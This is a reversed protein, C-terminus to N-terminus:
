FTWDTTYANNILTPGNSHSAFYTSSLGLSSLSANSLTTKNTVGSPITEPYVAGWIFCKTISCSGGVCNVSVADGVYSPYPTTAGGFSVWCETMSGGETLMGVLGGGSIGVTIRSGRVWCYQIRGGYELGVLGGVAQLGGLSQSDGEEYLRNLDTNYVWCQDITGNVDAGVLGGIGISTWADTAATCNVGVRGSGGGVSCKTITGGDNAGALGGIFVGNLDISYAGQPGTCTTEAPNTANMHYVSSTTAYVHCNELTGDNIGTIGGVCNFAQLIVANQDFCVSVNKITGSNYGAVAGVYHAASVSGLATMKLNRIEGTNCSFLGVNENGGESVGSHYGWGSITYGLGDFKGEFDWRPYTTGPFNIGTYGIPHPNGGNLSSLNLGNALAFNGALSINYLYGDIEVYGRDINKWGTVTEVVVFNKDSGIDIMKYTPVYFVTGDPTSSTVELPQFPATGQVAGYCPDFIAEYGFEYNGTYVTGNAATVNFTGTLMNIPEGIEDFFMNEDIVTGVPVDFVQTGFVKSKDDYNQYDYYTFTISKTQMVEDKFLALFTVTVGDLEETVEYKPMGEAGGYYTGEEGTSPSAADVWGIFEFHEACAMISPNVIYGDKIDILEYTKPSEPMDEDAISYGGKKYEFTAEMADFGPTIVITGSTVGTTDLIDGEALIVSSGSPMIVTYNTVNYWNLSAGGVTVPTEPAYDEDEPLFVSVGADTAKAPVASDDYVVKFGADVWQATFTVDEIINTIEANSGYHNTDATVSSTYHSFAKGDPATFTSADPLIVSGGMAINTEINADVGGNNPNVTVTIGEADAFMATFTMNSNGVVVNEAYGSDYLVGGRLWGAFTKSAHHAQSQRLLATIDTGNRFGEIKVKAPEAGEADINTYTYGASEPFLTDDVTLSEGEGASFTLTYTTDEMPIWQATLVTDAYVAFATGRGWGDFQWAGSGSTDVAYYANPYIWTGEEVVITHPLTGETAAGKVLDAASPGTGLEFTVSHKPLEIASDEVDDSLNHSDTDYTGPLLIGHYALIEGEKGLQNEMYTEGSNANSDDSAASKDANLLMYKEEAYSPVAPDRVSRMDYVKDGNEHYPVLWFTGDEDPDVPDGSLYPTVDEGDHKSNLSWNDMVDKFDEYNYPNENSILLRNDNKSSDKDYGYLWFVGGKFVAIVMQQPSKKDGFTDMVYQAAINRADSLASKANANRVVTSFVPVLIAALIGIVVLVVVLEVTTFGRKTRRM